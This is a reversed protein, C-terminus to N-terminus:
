RVERWAVVHVGQGHPVDEGDGAPPRRAIYAEVVRRLGDPALAEARVILVGNADISIHTDDDAEDDAVWVVLFLRSAPESPALSQVASWLFPQWQLSRRAPLPSAATEAALRAAASEPGCCVVVQGGGPVTKGGSFAGQAHASRASGDLVPTWDTLERLESLAVSLGADAAYLGEAAHLFRDAIAIEIRVVTALGLAIASLLLMFLLVPLLVSGSPAILDVGL